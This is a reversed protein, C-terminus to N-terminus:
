QNSSSILTTVNDDFNEFCKRCLFIKCYFDCCWFYIKKCQIQKSHRTSTVLSLSNEDCQVNTKGVLKQLIVQAIPRIPYILNSCPCSHFYLKWFFIISFWELALPSAPNKIQYVCISTTNCWVSQLHYWVM